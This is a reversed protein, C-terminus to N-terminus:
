RRNCGLTFGNIQEKLFESKDTDVGTLVEQIAVIGKKVIEKENEGYTIHSM